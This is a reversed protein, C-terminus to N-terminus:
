AYRMAPRQMTRAGPTAQQIMYRLVEPPVNFGAGWAAMLDDEEQPTLQGQFMNALAQPGALGTLGYEPLDFTSPMSGSPTIGFAMLRGIPTNLFDQGTQTASEQGPPGSTVTTGDATTITTTPVPTEVPAPAGGNSLPGEPDVPAPPQMM